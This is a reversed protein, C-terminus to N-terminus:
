MLGTGAIMLRRLILLPPDAPPDDAQEDISSNGLLYHGTADQKILLHAPNVTMIVFPIVNSSTLHFGFIDTGESKQGKFGNVDIDIRACSALGDTNDACNADYHTFGLLTGDSLVM